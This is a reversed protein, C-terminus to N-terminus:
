LDQRARVDRLLADLLANDQPPVTGALTRFDEGRDAKRPPANRYFTTLPRRYVSALKLLQNRTPKAEGTEFAELKEAGTAKESSSLGLRDAAEDVSLGATERAWTLISPNINQARIAM